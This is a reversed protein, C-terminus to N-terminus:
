LAGLETTLSAPIVGDPNKLIDKSVEIEAVVTDTIGSSDSKDMHVVPDALFDNVAKGNGDFSWAKYKIVQGAANLYIAEVPFTEDAVAVAAYLGGEGGYKSDRFVENRNLFKKM